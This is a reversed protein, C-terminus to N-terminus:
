AALRELEGSFVVADRRGVNKVIRQKTRGDERLYTYSNIRKERAFRWILLSRHASEDIVITASLVDNELL